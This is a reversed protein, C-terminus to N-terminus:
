VAGGSENDACVHLVFNKVDIWLDGVNCGDDVDNDPTPADDAILVRASQSTRKATPMMAGQTRARTEARHREGNITRLRPVTDSDAARDTRRVGRMGASTPSRRRAPNRTRRTAPCVDRM